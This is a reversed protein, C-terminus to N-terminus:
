VENGITKYGSYYILPRADKDIGLDLIDCLILHHDGVPIIQRIAGEYWAHADKINHCKGKSIYTIPIDYKNMGAFQSSIAKQKDNLISIGISKGVECNSLFTSDNQVSIMVIPPDLSISVFSNATIGRIEGNEQEICVVTVGTAFAGAVNRLKNPNIVSKM